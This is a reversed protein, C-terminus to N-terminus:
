RHEIAIGLRAREPSHMMREGRRIGLVHRRMRALRMAPARERVIEHEIAQLEAAAANARVVGGRLRAHERQEADAIGRFLLAPESEQELSKARARRRVPADREADIAD